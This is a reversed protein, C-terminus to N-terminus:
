SSKGRDGRKAARQPPKLAEEVRAALGAGVAKALPDVVRVTITVGLGILVLQIPNGSTTTLVAALLGASGTTGLMDVLRVWGEPPSGFTPVRADSWFQDMFYSPFGGKQDLFADMASMGDPFQQFYAGPSGRSTSVVLPNTEVHTLVLERMAEGPVTEFEIWATDRMWITGRVYMKTRVEWEFDFYQGVRRGGLPRSEIPSNTVEHGRHALPM